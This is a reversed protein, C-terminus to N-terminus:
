EYVEKAWENFGSREKWDEWTTFRDFFQPTNPGWSYFRTFREICALHRIEIIRVNFAQLNRLIEAMDTDVICDINLIIETGNYDPHINYKDSMGATYGNRDLLTMISALESVTKTSVDVTLDWEGSEPDYTM